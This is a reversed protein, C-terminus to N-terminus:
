ICFGIYIYIYIPKHILKHTYTRTHAIIFANPIQFYLLFLATFIKKEFSNLNSHYM